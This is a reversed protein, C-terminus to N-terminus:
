RSGNSRLLDALHADFFALVGARNLHDTNYFFREDNDVLSFDTLSVARRSLMQRLEADFRAEGPLLRYVRAPIPPKMVLVRMGRSQAAAILADFQSLYERLRTATEEPTLRPYLYDLRQQDIQRVPRYTRDFRTAEEDSVDPEFRDPNNIKSFGAIYDLGVLRSASNRVLLRALVPDFPARAFLRSDKLRDENWERSYFV